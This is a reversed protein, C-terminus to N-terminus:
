SGLLLKRLDALEKRPIPNQPDAGSLRSLYHLHPLVLQPSRTKSTLLRLAPQSVPNRALLLRALSVAREPSGQHSASLARLLHPESETWSCAALQSAAAKWPGDKLGTIARASESISEQLEAPVVKLPGLWRRSERILGRRLFFKAGYLAVEPSKPSLSEAKRLNELSGADDGLAERTAARALWAATARGSAILHHDRSSPDGANKLTKLYDLLYASLRAQSAGGIELLCRAAQYCAPELTPDDQLLDILLPLAEEPKGSKRLAMALEFSADKKLAEVELGRRLSVIALRYEGRRLQVLGLQHHAQPDDPLKALVAEIHPLAAEHKRARLAISIAVRRIEPRDNLQLARQITANAENHDQQFSCLRAVQALLAARQRATTTKGTELLKRLTKECSPYDALEFLCRARLELLGERRQQDSGAPNSLLADITRLAQDFRGSALEAQLRDGPIGQCLCFLYICILKLLM